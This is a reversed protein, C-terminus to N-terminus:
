QHHECDASRTYKQMRGSPTPTDAYSAGQPLPRYPYLPCSYGMCRMVQERWTGEGRNGEGGICEKCQADIAQQRTVKTQKGM